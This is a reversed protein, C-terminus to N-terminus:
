LDAHTFFINPGGCNIYYTNPRLTSKDGVEVKSCRGSNLYKLAGKYLIQVDKESLGGQGVKPIADKDIRPDNPTTPQALEAPRTESLGKADVWRAVKGSKGEVEGDYFKSVRAWGNKLEFVEVKQRQYIKNTSTARISPELREDLVADKVYYVGPKTAQPYVSTTLTLLIISTLLTKL